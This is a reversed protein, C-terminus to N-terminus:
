PTGPPEPLRARIDCLAATQDAKAQKQRQVDDVRFATLLAVITVFRVIQWRTVPPVAPVSSTM